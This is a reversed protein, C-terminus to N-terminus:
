NPPNAQHFGNTQIGARGGALDRPKEGLGRLARAQTEFRRDVGKSPFADIAAEKRRGVVVGAFLGHDKGEKFLLSQTQVAAARRQGEGLAEEGEDKLVALVHHQLIEGDVKGKRAVSHGLDHARIFRRQRQAHIGRTEGEPHFVATQGELGARFPAGRRLLLEKEGRQVAAAAADIQHGAVRLIRQAIEGGRQQAGVRAHEALVTDFQGIAGARRPGVEELALADDDAVVLVPFVVQEKELATPVHRQAADAYEAARAHAYDALEAAVQGNLVHADLRFWRSILGEGDGGVREVEEMAAAPQFDAAAGHSIRQVVRYVDVSDVRLDGLNAAGAGYRTQAMLLLVAEIGIKGAVADHNEARLAFYAPEAHAGGLEDLISCGDRQFKLFVGFREEPGAAIQVIGVAHGLNQQLVVLKEVAGPHQQAARPAGDHAAVTKLEVARHRQGAAHVVPEFRAHGPVRADLAVIKERQGAM